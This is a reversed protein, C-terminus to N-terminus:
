VRAAASGFQSLIEGAVEEPTKGETDAEFDACQRYIPTREALLEIIEDIGGRSTLNPRKTPTTSCAAIRECLTEPTASLWAIWCRQRLAERNQPRLVAGGGLAIVTADRAALERVVDTELDRFAPEGDDEFIAAISKGAQLEIEVDADVWPWGLKLGLLRAVSTKGSGRYGILALNIPRHSM